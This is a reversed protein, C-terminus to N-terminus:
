KVILKRIANVQEGTIRVFYAGQAYGTLNITLTNDTATYEGMARGNMDVVTVTAQGDFGTLTVTSTAPNPYLAINASNVDNIGEPESGDSEFNATLTIDATLTFTYPNDTSVVNGNSTWNTFHYGANAVATATVVTNEEVSGTHDASASGMVANATNVTVNYYTPEPTSGYTSLQRIASATSSDTASCLAVVYMDYVTDTVLGTLNVSNTNVYQRMWSTSGSIRYYFNYNSATGDWTATATTESTMEAHLQTPRPCIAGDTCRIYLEYGTHCMTGSVTFTITLSGTTSTALITNLLTDRGNVTNYTYLVDGTTGEGDYVTLTAPDM